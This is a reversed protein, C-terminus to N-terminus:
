PRDELRTIRTEHKLLIATALRLDDRIDTIDDHMLALSTRIESVDKLKDHMARLEEFMREMQKGLFELTVEPM